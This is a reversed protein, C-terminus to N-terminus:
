RIKYPKVKDEALVHVLLMSCSSVPFHGATGSEKFASTM